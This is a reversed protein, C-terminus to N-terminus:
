RSTNRVTDKEYVRVGALMIGRNLKDDLSRQLIRLVPGDEITPKLEILDALLSWPNQTFFVHADTILGTKRLVVSAGPVKGADADVTSVVPVLPASEAEIAAQLATPDNNEIALQMLHDREADRLRKQEAMQRAEDDRRQQEIKAQRTREYRSLLTAVLSRVSKATKEEDNLWAVLGKWTDYAKVIHPRIKAEPSDPNKANLFAKAKDDCEKVSVHEDNLIVGFQIQVEGITPLASLRRLEKEMADFDRRAPEFAKRDLPAPLATAM